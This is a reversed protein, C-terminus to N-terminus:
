LGEEGGGGHKGGESRTGGKGGDKGRKVIGQPAGTLNGGALRSTNPRNAQGKGGAYESAKVSDKGEGRRRM